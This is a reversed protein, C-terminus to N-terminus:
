KFKDLVKFIYNITFQYNFYKKACYQGYNLMEFYLNSNLIKDVKIPIDDIEEPKVLICIKEWDILETFPLHFDDSIYIPVTGLNFSEYFRYSAPGYGRPCLSFYSELALKKFSRENKKTIFMDDLVKVQFDRNNKLSNSLESRIPHTNRGIFSAKFKKKTFKNRKHTDSLLPIKVYSTNNNLKTNFMGGCTFVICNNLSVLPGGDYQVITFYVNNTNQLNTDLFYQLEPLGNKVNKVLYNTWQIPIYKFNSEKSANNKVFSYFKSEINETKQHPPYNSILGTNMFLEPTKIIEIM